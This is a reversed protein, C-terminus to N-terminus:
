IANNLLLGAPLEAPSKWASHDSDGTGQTCEPSLGDLMRMLTYPTQRLIEDRWNLDLNMDDGIM